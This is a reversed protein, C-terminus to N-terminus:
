STLSLRCLLFFFPPFFAGSIWNAIAVSINVVVIFKTIILQFNGRLNNRDFLSSKIKQWFGSSEKLYLILRKYISKSHPPYGIKSSGRVRIQNFFIFYLLVLTAVKAMLHNGLFAFSQTNLKILCSFPELLVIIQIVKLYLFLM